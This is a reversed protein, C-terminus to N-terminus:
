PDASGVHEFAAKLPHYGTLDRNQWQWAHVMEHALLMADALPLVEPWGEVMDGRYLDGRM